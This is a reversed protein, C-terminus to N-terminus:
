QQAPVQMDLSWDGLSRGQQPPASQFIPEVGAIITSAVVHSKDAGEAVGSVVVADGAKLDSLAITPARELMRSLDGSGARMPRGGAGSGGAGTGEVGPGGNGGASWRNGGNANGGSAASSGGAGTAEGAKAGYPPAGGANGANESGANAQAAKFDPNLWRALGMAMMPPLKRVVSDATLSVQLSQKTQLDKITIQQSDSAIAVVTGAVTRFAGSYVRQATITAGDESKGGLVRVQDGPQIDALQSPAPTKPSEASYRTFDTSKSTNVIMSKPGNPTRVTIALTQATPDISTVVGATSHQWAAAEQQHAQELDRGSMLLVSRAAIANPGSSNSAGEPATGLVTIRDGPQLDDATIRTASKLDKAGPPVKLLTRTNELLVAYEAGTKDEKVVVSHSAPDLKTITGIVHASPKAGAAPQQASGVSFAFVLGAVISLFKLM